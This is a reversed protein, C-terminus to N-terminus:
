KSMLAKLKNRGRKMLNKYYRTFNAQDEKTTTKYVNVINYDDLSIMRWNRLVLDWVIILNRKKYWSKTRPRIGKPAKWKFQKDSKLYEWNASCLMRRTENKQWPAQFKIPWIRRKFLVEIVDKKVIKRIQSDSFKLKNRKRILLPNSTSEKSKFSPFEDEEEKKEKIIEKRKKFFVNM